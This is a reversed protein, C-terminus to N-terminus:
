PEAPIDCGILTPKGIYLRYGEDIVVYDKYIIYPVGKYTIHTTGRDYTNVEILNTTEYWRDKNRIAYDYGTLLGDAAERETLPFFYYKM